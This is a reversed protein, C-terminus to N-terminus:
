RRAYFSIAEFSGESVTYYGSGDAAFGLAEGQGERRVPIRCPSGALAEAVSAGAARRWLFAGDYSRIAVEDGAPSIDGGTTLASGALPGAGFRLTAVLTLRTTGATLPATARYVPSEGSGAKVVIFVDGSRPDVLLTEANRARDPYVLDFREVGTLMTPTPSAAGVLPERVRYVTINRRSEGNDGIDGVYLYPAGREPGPGIAIDEWDVSTAGELDFMVTGAPAIRQAFLRPTAGSDNHLWLVGPNRRGEVIGSAERVSRSPFFPDFPTRAREVADAFAPCPPPGSGGDVRPTVDLPATVDSPTTADATASADGGAAADIRSVVDETVPADPTPAADRPAQAEMETSGDVTVPADPATGTDTDPLLTADFVVSADSAM